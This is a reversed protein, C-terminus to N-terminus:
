LSMNEKSDEASMVVALKLTIHEKDQWPWLMAIITTGNFNKKFLTQNDRIGGYKQTLELDDKTPKKGTPKTALGFTESFMKMWAEADKACFVIEACEINASRKEYINLKILGNKSKHNLINFTNKRIRKSLTM